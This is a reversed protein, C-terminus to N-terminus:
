YENVIGAFIARAQEELLHRPLPWFTCVAFEFWMCMKVGKLLLSSSLTTRRDFMGKRVNRKSREFELLKVSLGLWSRGSVVKDGANLIRSCPSREFLSRTVDCGDVISYFNAISFLAQGSITRM